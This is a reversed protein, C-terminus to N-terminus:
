QIPGPHSRGVLPIGRVSVLGRHRGYRSRISDGQTAYEGGQGGNKFSMPTLLRPPQGPIRVGGGATTSPRGGCEWWRQWKRGTSNKARRRVWGVLTSQEAGVETLSTPRWKPSKRSHAAPTHQSLPSFRLLRNQTHKRPAWSGEQCHEPVWGRLM